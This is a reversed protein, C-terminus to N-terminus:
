SRSALQAAETLVADLDEDTIREDTLVKYVVAAQVKGIMSPDVDYDAEPDINARILAEADEANIEPGGDTMGARLDAVFKIIDASTADEGFRREVALFFLSALFRAFGDWGESDLQAQIRDHADNDGQILTRIYAPLEPKITM